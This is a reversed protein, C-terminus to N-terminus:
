KLMSGVIVDVWQSFITIGQTQHKMGFFMLRHFEIQIWRRFCFCIKKKMIIEIKIVQITEILSQVKDENIVSLLPRSIEKMPVDYVEDILASHISSIPENSSFQDGCAPSGNSTSVLKTGM